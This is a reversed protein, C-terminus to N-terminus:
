GQPAPTVSVRVEEKSPGGGTQMWERQNSNKLGSRMKRRRMKRRRMKRRM